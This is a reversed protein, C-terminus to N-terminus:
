RRPEVPPARFAIEQSECVMRYGVRTYVHNSTRNALDTYLYCASRGGELLWGSVRAVLNSAYGRGRLTPPTYVPGIRAGHEDIASWGSLSVPEGDVEWLWLGSDGDEALRLELM